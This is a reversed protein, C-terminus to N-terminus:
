NFTLKGYSPFLLPVALLSSGGCKLLAKVNKRTVPLLSYKSSLQMITDNVCVSGSSTQELFKDVVNKKNTFLYMTLPKESRNIFDIAEDESKVIMIPLIPGFLEESMLSDSATVNTVITPAIFRQRKDTEGGTIIQKM